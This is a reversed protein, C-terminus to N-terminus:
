KELTEMGGIKGLAQPCDRRARGNYYPKGPESVTPISNNNIDGHGCFRFMNQIGVKQSPM